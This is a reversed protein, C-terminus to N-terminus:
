FDTGGNLVMQPTIDPYEDKDIEIEAEIKLEVKM